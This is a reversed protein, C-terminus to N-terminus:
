KPSSSPDESAPTHPWPKSYEAARHREKAAYTRAEDARARLRKADDPPRHDAVKELTDAVREETSAISGALNAAQRRLDDVKQRTHTRYKDDAPDPV